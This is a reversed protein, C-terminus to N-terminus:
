LNFSFKIPLHDSIKKNIINNKSLLSKRGIKTVINIYNEDFYPILQPSFLVQDFMNWHYSVPNAPSYYITGSVDGKSMDGLFSWMPNYLFDYSKGDVTRSTKSAITKDMVAHLGTTQVMADDFPNMNFDGCIITRNKGVEVEAYEIAKKLEFIHANQDNKGWNVRSQYHVVILIVEGFVSSFLRRTTFRQKTDGQLPKTNKANFKTFIHIKNCIPDPSFSFLTKKTNLKLLLEAPSNTNEALMLLDTDQQKVLEVIEHLNAKKNTNWFLFNM